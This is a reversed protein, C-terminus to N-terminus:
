TQRLSLFIKQEGFMFYPQRNKGLSLARVYRHIKELSWAPSLEYLEEISKRTCFKPIIQFHRILEAQPTTPLKTTIFRELYEQFFSFGLEELEEIVQSAIKTPSLPILRTAIIPGTDLKEDIYHFTLGYTEAQNIIAHTLTGSGRYEPLPAFHLNIVGHSFRQITSLPIRQPFGIVLGLDAHLDIPQDETFVPVNYKQAIESIQQHSSDTTATCVGLLKTISYQKELTQLLFELCLAGLPKCCWFFISQNFIPM